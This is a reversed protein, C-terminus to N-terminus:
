NKLRGYEAICVADAMGDSPKRSRKTPYLNTKPYKQQIYNISMEKNGKWDYGVMVRKKWEQPTVLILSIGLAIAIGQYAGFQEGFRFSSAVGQKPMSHVKEIVIVNPKFKVIKSVVKKWDVIRKKTNIIPVPCANVKNDTLFALGGTLGVDIGIIRM